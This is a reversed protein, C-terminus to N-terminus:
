RLSAETLLEPTLDGDTSARRYQTGDGSDEYIGAVGGVIYFENSGAGPVETPRLFLIYLKGPALSPAPSGSVQWVIVSSGVDRGTSDRFDRSPAEKPSAGLGPPFLQKRVNIAWAVVRVEGVQKSEAEGASARIVTTSDGVLEGLSGYLAARSGEGGSTCATLLLCLTLAILALARVHMTKLSSRISAM